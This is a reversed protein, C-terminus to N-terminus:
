EEEEKTGEAYRANIGNLVKTTINMDPRGYLLTSTYTNSIILDYKRSANYDDLFSRLSDYVQQMMSQEHEALQAGMQNQLQMLNQQESTLDEQMKKAQTSTILRKQVKNQFDAMRQEFRQSRSAFDAEMQQRKQNYMEQMEQYLRYESLVTDINVYAVRLMSSKLSDATESVNVQSTDQEDSQSGTFHFVYLLVVAVILLANITLVVSNKM